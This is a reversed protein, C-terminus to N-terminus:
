PRRNSRIIRLLKNVYQPDTAYGQQKLIRAAEEVTRANNAGNRGQYWKNVLFGVSDSPSAFDMFSARTNVRRGNVVEWTGKTTGAGKQGFFNNRGSPSRGWDSELAWQAAVLEPFKAGRARAMSVVSNWDTRVSPGRAGGGSRTAMPTPAAMAPPAVVDLALQAANNIAGSVAGYVSATSPVGPQAASIKLGNLEQLRGEYEKLFPVGPYTNNWQDLFFQAPKDGYGARKIMLKLPESLEGTTLFKKFIQDYVNEPFLVGNKAQQQLQYNGARNGPGMRGFFGQKDSWQQPSEFLPDTTIGAAPAAATKKTQDEIYRDLEKQLQAPPMNNALGSRRIAEIDADLEASRQALRQSEAVTLTKGGESGQRQMAALEQDMLRKKADKAANIIPRQDAAQIQRYNALVRRAAEPSMLGNRVLAEIRPIEVNPDKDYGFTVTAEVLKQQNASVADMAKSEREIEDVTTQRLVPDQIQMAAQLAQTKAALRATPSLTPDGLRYQAALQRGTDEGKEKSIYDVNDSLAKYRKVLEDQFQLAASVGGKAGLQDVLLTEGNPGVRVQGLVQRAENSLYTWRQLNLQGDVVSGALVAEAMWPIIDELHKQYGEVGLGVRVNTLMNTLNAAATGRDILQATFISALNAKTAVAAQRTKHDRHLTAHQRDFEAYKAEMQPALEAFVVPDNPIRFLSTQAAELRPDGPPIQEIPTGDIETLQAFRGVASNIDDQLLAKNNYRNAYALQLPSLAQVKNYAEAAAVDGEQARRYLQDRLDVLQQGPYRARLDNAFQQGILKARADETKVREVYQEGFTQLLPSFGGLARALAAMDQSAAPLSPPEFFRVPGGVTPAGTQQFIDVPAAQPQLAPQNISSQALIGPTAMQEAAGMLRAPTARGTAGFTQGTSLRAM